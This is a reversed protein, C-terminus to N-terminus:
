DSNLVKVSNIVKEVIPLYLDYQMEDPAANGIHFITSSIISEVYIGYDFTYSIAPNNDIKFKTYNPKSLIHFTPLSQSNIAM